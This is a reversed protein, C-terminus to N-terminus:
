SVTRSRMRRLAIDNALSKGHDRLTNSGAPKLAGVIDADYGFTLIRANPLDRALLTQPWFTKSEKHTWTTERNGTLGHVFVISAAGTTLNHNLQRNLILPKVSWLPRMRSPSPESGM